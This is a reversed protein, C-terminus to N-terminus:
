RELRWAAAVMVPPPPPPANGLGLGLVTIHWAVSGDPLRDAQMLRPRPRAVAATSWAAGARASSSGSGALLPQHSVSNGKGTGLIRLLLGWQEEGHKCSMAM